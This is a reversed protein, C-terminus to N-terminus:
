FEPGFYRVAAWNRLAGFPYYGMARQAGWFAVAAHKYDCQYLNAGDIPTCLFDHVATAPFVDPHDPPCIPWSWWPSSAGNFVFGEPVRWRYGYPDVFVIPYNLRYQPVKVWWFRTKLGDLHTVDIIPDDVYCLTSPDCFYGFRGPNKNRM